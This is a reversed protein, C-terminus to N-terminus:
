RLMSDSDCARPIAWADSERALSTVATAAPLWVIERECRTTLREILRARFYTAGIAFCGQAEAAVFQTARGMTDLIRARWGIEEIIERLMADEPLEGPQVGRGPLFLRGTEGRIFALRSGTGRIIAYAGPRELYAVDSRRKGFEPDSDNV